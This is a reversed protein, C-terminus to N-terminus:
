QALIRAYSAQIDDVAQQATSMGAALEQFKKYFVDAVAPNTRQQNMPPIVPSKAVAALLNTTLRHVKSQDYTSIFESKIVPMRGLEADVAAFDGSTLRKVLEVAAAYQEPTSKTNLAFEWGSGGTFLGSKVESKANRPAPMPAVDLKDLVDSPCNLVIEPILWPGAPFVAAQENFLYAMDETEHDISVIDDNFYGKIILDEIMSTVEVFCEDSFNYAPDFQAIGKVWDEGCVYECLYEVFHSPIPWGAKDGLTMPIKGADKLKQCMDLFDDWHTPFEQYGVSAIMDKNYIMCENIIFQYPIGYVSGNHKAEDWIDLFSDRWEPDEALIDDWSKLLGAEAAVGIQSNLIMFLTPLNDANAMVKFKTNEYDNHAAADLQVDVNPFDKEYQELVELCKKSWEDSGEVWTTAITLVVKDDALANSVTALSLSLVLILALLFSLGKKM